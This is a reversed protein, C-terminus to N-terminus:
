PRCLLAKRNIVCSCDLNIFHTGKSLRQLDCHLLSLQFLAFCFMASTSVFSKSHHIIVKVFRYKKEGPAFIIEQIVKNGDSEQEDICITSKTRIDIKKKPPLPPILPYDKLFNM